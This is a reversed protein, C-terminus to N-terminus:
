KYRDQNLDKLINTWERRLPCNQSGKGREGERSPKELGLGDEVPLDKASQRDLSRSMSLYRQDLRLDLHIPDKVKSAQKEIPVVTRNTWQTM